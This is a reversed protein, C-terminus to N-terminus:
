GARPNQFIADGDFIRLRQRFGPLGDAHIPLRQRRIVLEAFEGASLSQAPLSELLRLGMAVIVGTPAVDRHIAAARASSVSDSSGSNTSGNARARAPSTPNEIKALVCTTLPATVVARLGYREIRVFNRSSAITRATRSFPNVCTTIRAAPMSVRAKLSSQGAPKVSNSTSRSSTNPHVSGITSRRFATGFHSRWTTRVSRVPLQFAASVDVPKSGDRGVAKRSSPRSIYRRSASTSRSSSDNDLTAAFPLQNAPSTMLSRTSVDGNVAPM